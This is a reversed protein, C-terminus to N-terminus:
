RVLDLVPLLRKCERKIITSLMEVAGSQDGYRLHTILHGYLTLQEALADESDPDYHTRLNTLLRSQNLMPKLTATTLPKNALELLMVHFTDLLKYMALADQSGAQMRAREIIGALRMKDDPTMVSMAWKLVLSELTERLLYLEEAEETTFIRVLIGRRPRKVLWGERELILLADRATNQSVSMEQAITHEIIKEGPLYVGDRLAQRLSDAVLESLTPSSPM